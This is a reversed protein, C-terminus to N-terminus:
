SAAAERMDRVIARGLETCGVIADSELYSCVEISVGCAPLAVSSSTCGALMAEYADRGFLLDPGGELGAKWETVTLM